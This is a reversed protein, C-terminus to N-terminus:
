MTKRPLHSKVSSKSIHSVLVNKRSAKSSLDCPCFPITTDWTIKFSVCEISIKTVRRLYTIKNDELAVGLYWSGLRWEIDDFDEWHYTSPVYDEEM